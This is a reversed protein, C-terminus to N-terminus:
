RSVYIPNSFIWGRTRGKFMRQAELRYVGTEGGPLVHTVHTTNAWRGIVQGCRILSVTAPAPLAIQFTLGSRNVAEGGMITEGAETHAAFRFGRTAAIGDYGVFCQGAALAAYLRQRDAQAEGTLPAETLVHTNIQRFLFEYPFIARTLGWMTYPTGHADSNGIGVVRIGAATLADWKALTREPPGQIVLEPNFAARITDTKSTLGHAWDSMYNWIELGTFGCVEWNIWSIDEYDFLPVSNDHPHALFSLGGAERVAHILAQPEPAHQALECNANYALLHNKQPQRAQDHIEEGVLLLVRKGNAEYYREPGKVWVNHDTVCIMDLGANIAAEAIQAHYWEGDSYPTHMHLNTVFENLQM